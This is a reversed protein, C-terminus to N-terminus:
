KQLVPSFKWYSSQKILYKGSGKSRKTATSNRFQRWGRYVELVAKKLTKTNLTVWKRSTKITGLFNTRKTYASVAGLQLKITTILDM